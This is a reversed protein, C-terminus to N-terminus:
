NLSGVPGSPVSVITARSQPQEPTEVPAPTELRPAPQEAVPAEEVPAPTSKVEPAPAKEGEPVNTVDMTIEEGEKIDVTKTFEGTFGEPAEKEIITYKGPDVIFTMVENETAWEHLVEGEVDGKRIEFKAGELREGKDDYKNIHIKTEPTARPQQTPVPIEPITIEPVEIDPLEIQPLEPAPIDGVVIMRQHSAASDAPERILLQVGTDIGPIMQAAALLNDYVRRSEEDLRNADWSAGERPDAEYGVKHVVGSVAAGIADVNTTGLIQKIGPVDINSAGANKAKLAADGLTLAAILQNRQKENPADWEVPEGYADTNGNAKPEALGPDICWGEQDGDATPTQYTGNWGGNSEVGISGTGEEARATGATLFSALLAVVAALVVFVPTAKSTISRTATHM